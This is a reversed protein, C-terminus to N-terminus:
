SISLDGSDRDVVSIYIYILLDCEQMLTKLTLIRVILPRLTRETFIIM